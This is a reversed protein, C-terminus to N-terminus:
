LGKAILTGTFTVTVAQSESRLATRAFSLTRGDASVTIGMCTPLGRAAADTMCTYFLRDSFRSLAAAFVVGGRTVVSLQTDGTVSDGFFYERVDNTALVSDVLPTFSPLAATDSTLSGQTPGAITFTGSLINPAGSVTLTTNSLTALATAALTVTHGSVTPTITVGCASSCLQFLERFPTFSETVRRQVTAGGATPQGVSILSGDALNLNFVTGTTTTSANTADIVTFIRGSLNLSGTTTRPLELPSRLAGSAQGALTGNLTLGAGVAGLQSANFVVSVADAAVTPPNFSIGCDIECRLLLPPSGLSGKTYDVKHFGGFERSVVIKEFETTMGAGVQRETERSFVYEVLRSSVVVTFGAAKPSFTSGDGLTVSGSASVTGGSAGSAGSLNAVPVVAAPAAAPTAGSGGGCAAILGSVFLALTYLASQPTISKNM